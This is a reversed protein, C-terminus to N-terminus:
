LKRKQLNFTYNFGSFSTFISFILYNVVGFKRANKFNMILSKIFASIYGIFQIILMFIGFILTMVLLPAVLSKLPDLLSLTVIFSIFFGLVSLIKLFNTFLISINKYPINM